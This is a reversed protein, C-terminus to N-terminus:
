PASPRQSMGLYHENRKLFASIRGELETIHRTDNPMLRMIPDLIPKDEGGRRGGGGRSVPWSGGTSPQSSAATGATGPRSDSGATGPRADDGAAALPTTAGSTTVGSPTVAGPTAADGGGNAAAALAGLLGSGDGAALAGGDALQALSPAASGLLADTAKKSNQLKLVSSRMKGRGRGRKGGGGAAHEERRVAFYERLFAKSRLMLGDCCCDGCCRLPTRRLAAAIAPAVTALAVTDLPVDPLPESRQCMKIPVSHAVSSIGVVCCGRAGRGGGFFFRLDILTLVASLARHGCRPM